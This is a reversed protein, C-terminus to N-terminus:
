ARVCVGGRRPRATTQHYRRFFALCTSAGDRMQAYRKAIRVQACLALMVRPTSVQFPVARMAAAGRAGSARLLCIDTPPRAGNRTVRKRACESMDAHKACLEDCLRAHQMLASEAGSCIRTFRANHSRECTRLM